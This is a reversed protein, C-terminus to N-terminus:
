IGPIIRPRQRARCLAHYGARAGLTAVIVPAGVRTEGVLAGLRAVLTAIDEPSPLTLDFLAGTVIRGPAVELDIEITDIGATPPHSELDLLILTRVVRADRMP